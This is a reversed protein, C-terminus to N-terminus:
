RAAVFDRVKALWAAYERAEKDEALAALAGGLSPTVGRAELFAEFEAQLAEDLEDFHPGTFEADDEEEEGNSAGGEKKKKELSVHMIQLYTGDSRCDFLLQSGPSADKTVAVTFVVGGDDFAEEEDDIEADGDDDGEERELVDDVDDDQDDILLEVTVREGAPPSKSVLALRASGDAEAGDSGSGPGFAWGQPLDPPGQPAHEAEYKIETDLVSLLSSSSSSSPSASAAAAFFGRTSTSSSSSFISSSPLSSTQLMPATLARAAAPVTSGSRRAATACASSAFTASRSTAAALSTMTPAINKVFASLLM